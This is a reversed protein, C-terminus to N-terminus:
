TQKEMRRKISNFKREAETKAEAIQSPFLIREFESIRKKADRDGNLMAVYYWVCSLYNDQEIGEGYQYAYGLNYQAIRDGRLAAISYYNFANKRENIIKEYIKFAEAQAAEVESPLLKAGTFFGGSAIKNLKKSSDEGFLSALYYWMYANRYDSGIYYIDGLKFQAVADGREAATIWFVKRDTFLFLCLPTLIISSGCAVSEREEANGRFFAGALIFFFLGLVIPFTGYLSQDWEKVSKRRKRKKNFWEPVQYNQPAEIVNDEEFTENEEFDEEAKVTNAPIGKAAKSSDFFDRLSNKFFKRLRPFLCITVTILAVYVLEAGYKKVGEAFIEYLTNEM